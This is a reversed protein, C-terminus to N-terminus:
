QSSLRLEMMSINAGQGEILGEVRDNAQKMNEAILRCVVVQPGDKGDCSLVEFGASDEEEIEPVARGHQGLARLDSVFNQLIIDEADAAKRGRGEVGVIVEDLDIEIQIQEVFLRALGGWDAFGVPQPIKKEGFNLM